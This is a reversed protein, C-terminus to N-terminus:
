ALFTRDRLPGERAGKADVGTGPVLAGLHDKM